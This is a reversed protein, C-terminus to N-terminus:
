YSGRNRDSMFLFVSIGVVLVIENSGEFRKM